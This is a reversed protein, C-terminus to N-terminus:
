VSAGFQRSSAPGSPKVKWVTVSWDLSRNLTGQAISKKSSTLLSCAASRTAMASEQACQVSRIWTTISWPWIMLTSGGSVNTNRPPPQRSL